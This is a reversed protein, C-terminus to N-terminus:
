VKTTTTVRTTKHVLRSHTYLAPRQKFTDGCDECMYSREESHTLQHGRLTSQTFFKKGCVNCCHNRSRTLGHQTQRHNKLRWDSIFIKNCIECKFSSKHLHYFEWHKRWYVKSAFKKKCDECEYVRESHNASNKLHNRYVYINKYQVNCEMCFAMKNALITNHSVIHSELRSKTKFTKKCIDCIYDRKVGHIRIKHTRLTHKGKFKENCQNCKLLHNSQMHESLENPTGVIVSCQQCHIRGHVDKSHKLRCHSVVSWLELTEYDCLTCKYVVYHKKIHKKLSKMSIYCSQCINCVYKGINKDHRKKIHQNYTEKRLFGLVCSECKYPIKKYNPQNRKEERNKLMEEETFVIMTYKDKVKSELLEQKQIKKLFKSKDDYTIQTNAEVSTDRDLSNEVIQEKKIENVNLTDTYIIELDYTCKSYYTLRSLSQLDQRTAIAMLADQVQMVQAKFKKIKMIFTKCEWCVGSTVDTRIPIGLEHLTSTLKRLPYLFRGRELCTQCMDTSEEEEM